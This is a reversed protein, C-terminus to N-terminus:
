STQPVEKPPSQQPDQPPKAKKFGRVAAMCLTILPLLLLFCMSFISAFNKGWYLQELPSDFSALSYCAVLVGIPWVLSRYSQIGTVQELGKATAYLLLTIKYFLLLLLVIAYLVEMRTLIDALNILRIAEYSPNTFYTAADGLVAIDRASVVLLIVTGFATGGILPKKLEMPKELIPFFMWLIMIEAYAIFVMNMMAHFYVGPSQNLVPKLHEPKIQDALLLTNIITIMFLGAVIAMTWRTIDAPGKRVAYCAVAMFLALVAAKPTEPMLTGVIFASMDDLNLFCLIFFYICYIASVIKGAIKGLVLENIEILTKGPFKQALTIFIAAIPLFALLGFLIILWTDRGSVDTVYSMIIASSQIFSTTMLFLIAPSIKYKM